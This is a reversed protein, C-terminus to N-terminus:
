RSLDKSLKNLCGTGGTPKKFPLQKGYIVILPSKKIYIITAM